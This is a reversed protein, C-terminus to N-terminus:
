RLLKMSIISDDEAIVKLLYIGASYNNLNLTYNTISLRENVILKGSMNYVLIQQNPKKLVTILQYKGNGLNLLEVNEENISSTSTAINPSSLVSIEKSSTVACDDNSSTLTVAYNGISIYNHLPNVGFSSNGDDFDWYFSTANQSNNLINIEGGESLYVTDQNLVFDSTLNVGASISVPFEDVIGKSEVFISYNGPLLNGFNSISSNLSNNVVLAQNDDIIQVNWDTNGSNNITVIGDNMGICTEDEVSHTLPTSINFTFLSANQQENLTFDLATDGLIRYHSDTALDTLSVKFNSSTPFVEEIELTYVGDTPINTFITLSKDETLEPLCNISMKQGTSIETYISPVNPNASILKVADFMPDFNESAGNLMRIITEDAYGNGEIRIRFANNYQGFASFITLFLLTLIGTKKDIMDM